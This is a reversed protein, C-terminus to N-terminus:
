RKLEDLSIMPKATESAEIREVIPGANKGLVEKIRPIIHKAEAGFTNLLATRARIRPGARGTPEQITDVTLRISERIGLRYLTDLGDQRGHDGYFTFTPDRDKIVHLMKDVVRTLDEKPINRVLAMGHMRGWGHKHDLLKAVGKYFTDKDLDHAYPDPALLKVLAAGLDIDLEQYPDCPKDAALVQLLDPGYGKAESLGTLVKVARMRLWLDAKEDQVIGLLEDAASGLKLAQIAHTAGIRQTATGNKLLEMVEDTVTADRIALQEAARLRVPPYPSGLQTLLAAESSTDIEGSEIIAAAQQRSIWLSTDMGKGTVHIARRGVCLNLLHSATDSLRGQSRDSGWGLLNTHRGNWTRTITRLWHIKRNYAAAAEPGLVNAGLGSWLINWWPGTHGTLIEESAAASMGAYFKAGETNGLLAFAVALSGSTGNNTFETEKPQHNGYPLAGRGIWNDYHAHTRAIAAHVMPDDVGCKEALILGIFIALSPQNMVGYGFARGLEPHRMRHGWLGAADQGAALGRAFTRIAPLVTKDGTLLCYETLVLTKYGWHWSTFTSTVGILEDIDDPPQAWEAKRLYDRVVQIYKDEGTALLALLGTNLKGYKGTKVLYEATQTILADTKPCKVPATPSYRGFVRLQLLVDLEREPTEETAPRKIRLSLLGNEIEARDIAETFRDYAEGDIPTGDVTLIIDGKRLKGDAPSGEEIFDVVLHDPYRKAFFGTPGYHCLNGPAPPVRLDFTVTNGKGGRLSDREVTVYFHWDWDRGLRFVRKGVMAKINSGLGRYQLRVIRDGELIRGEAVSGPLTRTVRIHDEEVTGCIGSNGIRYVAGPMVTKVERGALDPYTEEAARITIGAHAAILGAILVTVLPFRNTM